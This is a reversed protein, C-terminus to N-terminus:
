IIEQATLGTTTEVFTLKKNIGYDSSLLHVTINGNALQTTVRRIVETEDMMVKETIVPQKDTGSEVVSYVGGAKFALDDINVALLQSADILDETKKFNSNLVEILVNDTSEPLQFNETYKM